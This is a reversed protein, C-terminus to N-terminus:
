TWTLGNKKGLLNIVCCSEKRRPQNEAGDGMEGGVNGLSKASKQHICPKGNLALLGTKRHEQLKKIHERQSYRVM